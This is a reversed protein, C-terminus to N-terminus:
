VETGMYTYPARGINVANKQLPPIFFGFCNDVSLLFRRSCENGLAGV